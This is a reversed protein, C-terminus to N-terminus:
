VFRSLASLLAGAGMVMAAASKRHRRKGPGHTPPLAADLNPISVLLTLEPFAAKFAEETRVTQDFQERAFALGLGAALGLGLGMGIMMLPDPSYPKSPVGARDQVRFHEAQNAAELDEARRAEEYKRQLDQYAVRLNDRDRTIQLLEQERLPVNRVRSTLQDIQRNAADREKELSAIELELRQIEGRVGGVAPSEKEGTPGTVVLEPHVKEFEAIETLKKRVDPNQDTYSLRLTALESQLQQLHRLNPDVDTGPIGAAATISDMTQLQSRLLQIRNQRQTISDAIQNLRGQTVNILQLNTGQQDPLEGYYARRYSAVREEVEDLEKKKEDLWVKMQASTSAAQESRLKGNQEIFMDALLNAVRAARKPIQDTVSIKFFSAQRPTDPVSIHGALEDRAREFEARSAGEPVLKLEKIVRDLYSPGLIQVKLSALREQLGSTVTTRVYTEPLRQSVVLVTTTARYIKPLRELLVLSIAVGVIPPVIILWKRRWAADLLNKIQISNTM